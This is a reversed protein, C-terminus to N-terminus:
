ERQYEQQTISIRTSRDVEISLIKKLCAGLGRSTSRDIDRLESAHSHPDSFLVAPVQKATSNRILTTNEFKM